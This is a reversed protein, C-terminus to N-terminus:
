AARRDVRDLPERIRGGKQLIAAKLLLEFARDMADYRLHDSELPLSVTSWFALRNKVVVVSGVVPSAKGFLVIEDLGNLGTASLSSRNQDSRSM